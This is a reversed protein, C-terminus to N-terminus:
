TGHPIVVLFVNDLVNGSLSQHVPIAPIGVIDHEGLKQLGSHSGEGWLGSQYCGYGGVGM